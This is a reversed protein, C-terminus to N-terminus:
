PIVRKTSPVCLVAVRIVLLKELAGPPDFQDRAFVTRGLYPVPTVRYCVLHANETGPIVTVGGGTPTDLRVKQLVPNCLLVPNHVKVGESHFQDKLGVKAVIQKGRAAYCKFHNLVREAPGPTGEKEAPACLVLPGDLELVQEAGFQNTVSVAKPVTPPREEQIRHCKLHAFRFKIPTTQIAGSALVRTKEVPNCFVVTRGVLVKPETGFQDQLLVPVPKVPTLEEVFYCKFHDLVAEPPGGPVQQVATGAGGALTLYALVSVIAALGGLGIAPLAKARHKLGRSSNRREKMEVSRQALPPVAVLVPVARGRSFAWRPRSDKNIPPM